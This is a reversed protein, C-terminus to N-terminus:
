NTTVMEPKGDGDVDGVAIRGLHIATKNPSASELALSFKPFESPKAECNLDNGIYGGTCTLTQACEADFCDIFGDGDDDIANACNETTQASSSVTVGLTACLLVLYLLRKM